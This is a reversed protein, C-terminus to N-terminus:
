SGSAARPHVLVAREADHDQGLRHRRQRPREAARPGGRRAPRAAAAVVDRGRRPRGAHLRARRFRRITLVPGDVALPPIIVNVRSGDPLRADCSRSRRTSGAASRRSSASSRTGCSPRAVDFAVGAPEIRGAASSGSRARGTSWSRTSPRTACCRSSRASGSPASSSAAARPGRAGRPRAGRGRPGRARPHPRALDGDEGAGAERVLRERLAAALGELEDSVGGTPRSSPSTRGGLARRGSSAPARVPSGARTLAPARWTARRCRAARAAM